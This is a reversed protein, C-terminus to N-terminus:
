PGLCGRGLMVAVDDSAVVVVANLAQAQSVANLTSASAM